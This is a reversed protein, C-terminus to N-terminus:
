VRAPRAAVHWVAADLTLTHGDRAILRWGRRALSTALTTEALVDAVLREIGAAAACRALRRVLETGIGQGQRADVVAVAVEAAVPAGGVRVARAVGIPAGDPALAVLALQDRGDVDTLRARERETLRPKPSHFRRYRSQCSMGALIRDLLDGDGRGLPRIRLECPHDDLAGALAPPSIV